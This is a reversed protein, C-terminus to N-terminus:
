YLTAFLALGLLVLSAGTADIAIQLGRYKRRAISSLQMVHEVRHTPKQLDQIVEEPTASAWYLYSGPLVRGLRPRVVILVVLMALILGVAGAANLAAAVGSLSRGPISAVLVALPLSFATLLVASKADTRSIEALVTASAAELRPTIDTPDNM